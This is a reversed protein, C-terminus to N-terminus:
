TVLMRSELCFNWIPNNSYAPTSQLPNSVYKQYNSLTFKLFNFKAPLLPTRVVQGGGEGRSGCLFTIQQRDTYRLPYRKLWRVQMDGPLFCCISKERYVSFCEKFLKNKWKILVKRDNKLCIYAQIGYIEPIYLFPSKHLVM